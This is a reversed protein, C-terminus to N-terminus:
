ACEAMLSQIGSSFTDNETYLISFWLCEHSHHSVFNKVETSKLGACRQENITDTHHQRFYLARWSGPGGILIGKQTSFLHSATSKIPAYM